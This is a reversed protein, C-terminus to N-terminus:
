LISTERATPAIEDAALAVTFTDGPLSIKVAVGIKLFAFIIVMRTAVVASGIDTFVAQAVVAGRGVRVPVACYKEIHINYILMLTLFM